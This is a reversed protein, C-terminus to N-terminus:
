GGGDEQLLARMRRIGLRMRSKVTGLPAGMRDAIEPQSFGAAYLLLVARQDDPLHGLAHDVEGRRVTALATDAPGPNLDTLVDLPHGPDLPDRAHHPQARHRQRRLENLALNHGIRVIWPRVQGRGADFSSAHQWARLFAEQLVDEALTRERLVRLIVAFVVAAHREYLLDLAAPEGAVIRAMLQHDPDVQIV